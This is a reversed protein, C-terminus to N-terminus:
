NESYWYRFCSRNFPHTYNPHWGDHHYGLLQQYIKSFFTGYRILLGRDKTGIVKNLPAGLEKLKKNTRHRPDGHEEHYALMEAGTEEIEQKIEPYESIKPFYSLVVDRVVVSNKEIRDLKEKVVVLENKVTVLENKVIVLENQVADFKNKVIILENRFFEQNENAIRQNELMIQFQREQNENAIRQNELIMQYQREQNERLLALEASLDM